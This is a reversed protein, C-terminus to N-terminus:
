PEIFLVLHVEESHGGGTGRLTGNVTLPAPAQLPVVVRYEYTRPFPPNMVGANYTGRFAAGADVVLELEVPQDFGNEPTILVEGTQTAM